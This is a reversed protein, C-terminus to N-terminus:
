RCQNEYYGWKECNFCKICYSTRGDLGPIFVAGSPATHQSLTNDRGGRGGHNERNEKDGMCNTHHLRPPALEFRPLMNYANTVTRPYNINGKLMDQRLDAILYGFINYDSNSLFVMATLAKSSSSATDKKALGTTKNPDSKIMNKSEMDTLHSHTTM